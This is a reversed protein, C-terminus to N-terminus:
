AAAVVAGPELPTYFLTWLIVGTDDGTETTEIILDALVGNGLGFIFPALANSRDVTDDTLATTAGVKVVPVGGGNLLAEPQGSLMYIHGAGDSTITTAACLPISGAKENLLVTSAGGDTVTTLEGYILNIMVQGTVTFLDDDAALSSSKQVRFGLQLAQYVTADQSAPNFAM